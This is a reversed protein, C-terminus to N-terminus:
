YKWVRMTHTAIITYGPRHNLASKFNTATLDCGLLHRADFHNNLEEINQFIMAREEGHGPEEYAAAFIALALSM